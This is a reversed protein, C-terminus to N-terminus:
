IKEWEFQTINKDDTDFNIGIIYINNEQKIYGKYYEKEKIQELAIKSNKNLKFEIIYINNNLLIIMDADGNKYSKEAEVTLGTGKMYAYFISAYYGEYNSMTNNKAKYNQHPIDEFLSIMIEKFNTLNAEKLSVIIDRNIKINYDTLYNLFLRNLSVDVEKNPVKLTYENINFEEDNYYSKITLYGAQFLITELRINEIDFANLDEETIIINELEILNYHKNKLLKILFSPSGSEWWYNKYVKDNSIFQLTDFPNYVPDKLFNYGNYYNKFVRLDVDELYPLFTTEIDTQTYGCINGFKPKLSIDSLMNLGSFVSAKSFKTVGTLFAFKIYRENDKLITYFSKIIERNECAVEMQDLNDLIAKDYEDILVVVQTNYKEYTNQILEAFCIGFNDVKKCQVDLNKQNQELLAFLVDKLSAPSRLDGAFSIKIVPYKDEWNYKDYIYLDEFLEKKAEFIDQLTDLFLSKGFRRPRSLFYFKTGSQILELAEKTKDIYLYNEERIRQFTQIGIPLKKLM